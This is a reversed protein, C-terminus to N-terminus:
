DIRYVKAGNEEFIPQLVGRAALSPADAGFYCVFSAGLERALRRADEPREAKFFGEAQRFRSLRTERPLFQTFFPIFRTYPVRRGVLVMAPPPYRQLDPRQLVVDGPRSARELAAMARVITPTLRRPPTLAKRAVFQASSPLSLIACCALALARRTGSLPLSGVAQAAFLWLVFGSHEFFYLAENFPRERMGAELPSIRLVLGLL